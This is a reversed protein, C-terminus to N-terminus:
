AAEEGIASARANGGSPVDWVAGRCPAAPHERDLEPHRAQDVGGAKEPPRGVRGFPECERIRPMAVV